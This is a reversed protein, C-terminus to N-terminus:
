NTVVYLVCCTNRKQFIFIFFLYNQKTSTYYHSENNIYIIFLIHYKSTIMKLKAGLVLYM